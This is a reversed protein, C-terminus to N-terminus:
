QATLAEALTSPTSVCWMHTREFGRREERCRQDLDARVADDVAALLEVLGRAVARDVDERDLVVRVGPGVDAVANGTRRGAAGTM